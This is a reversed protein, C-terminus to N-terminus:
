DPEPTLASRGVLHGETLSVKSHIRVEQFSVKSM